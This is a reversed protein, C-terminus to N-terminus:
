NTLDHFHLGMMGLADVAHAPNATERVRRSGSPRAKLNLDSLRNTVLRSCARLM